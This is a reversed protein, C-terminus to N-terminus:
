VSQPGEAEIFVPRLDVGGGAFNLNKKRWLLRDFHCPFGIDFSESKGPSGDVGAKM